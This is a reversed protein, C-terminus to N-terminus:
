RAARAKVAANFSVRYEIKEGGFTSVAQPTYVTAEVRDPGVVVADVKSDFDPSSQLVNGELAAHALIRNGVVWRDLIGSFKAREPDDRLKLCMYTQLRMTADSLKGALAAAELPQAT